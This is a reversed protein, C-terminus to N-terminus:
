AKRFWLVSETATARSRYRQHRNNMAAKTVPLSTVIHDVSESALPLATSDAVEVSV